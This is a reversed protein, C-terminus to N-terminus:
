AAALEARARGNQKARYLAADAGRLLAEGATGHAPFGAVGLSLTTTGLSQGRHIVSMKEVVDGLLRARELTAELTAEPLVVVFEDGGYRCVV